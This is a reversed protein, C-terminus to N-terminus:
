SEESKRINQVGQSLIYVKGGLSLLTLLLFLLVYSISPLLLPCYLITSILSFRFIPLQFGLICLSLSCFALIQFPLPCANGFDLPHYLFSLTSAWNPLSEELMVSVQFNSEQNFEGLFM